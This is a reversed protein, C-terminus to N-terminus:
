DLYRPFTIRMLLIMPLFDMENHKEKECLLNFEKGMLFLFSPVCNM